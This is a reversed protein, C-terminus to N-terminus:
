LGLPRAVKLNPNSTGVFSVDLHRLSGTQMIVGGLVNQIKEDCRLQRNNKPQNNQQKISGLLKLAVLRGM